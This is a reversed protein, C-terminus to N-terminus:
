REEYSFQIERGQSKLKKKIKTIQHETSSRQTFSPRSAVWNTAPRSEFTIFHLTTMHLSSVHPASM